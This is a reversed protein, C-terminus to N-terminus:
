DIDRSDTAQLIWDDWSTNYATLYGNMFVGTDILRIKDYKIPTPSGYTITPTHGFVGIKDWQIKRTIDLTGSPSRLYREWMTEDNRDSPMFKLDRPLEETPRMFGHCAFHTDNEWYLKLSEFFRKHEEPVTGRWQELSEDLGDYIVGYSNVTKILGNHSWWRYNLVPDFRIWRDHSLAHGTLLWGVVDDHNGRLYVVEREKQLALLLNIVDKSHNGRDVYDGVFVLKADADAVFVNELLKELTYYCGHIDSIIFQM